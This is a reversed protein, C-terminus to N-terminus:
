EEVETEQAHNYSECRIVRGTETLIIATHVPVSSVVAAQLIQFFKQLAENYETFKTIVNAVSGDAATQLEIVIYVKDEM